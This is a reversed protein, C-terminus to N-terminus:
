SLTHHFLLFHRLPQHQHSYLKASLQPHKHKCRIRTTRPMFCFPLSNPIIQIITQRTQFTHSYQTTLLNLHKHLHYPLQLRRQYACHAQSFNSHIHCVHIMKTHQIVHVMDSSAARDARWTRPSLLAIGSGAM